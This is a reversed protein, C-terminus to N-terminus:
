GNYKWAAEIAAQTWVHLRNPHGALTQLERLVIQYHSQSLKSAGDFLDQKIKSNNEPFVVDSAKQRWMIVYRDEVRDIVNELNTWASCVFIRLNPISLVGDIKHTLNECCGYATLGFRGLIPRQYDLLFREWMAPSVQDFEQSNTMNWLNHLGITGDPNPEGIPDSCTMPEENNPTLIGMSEIQDLSSLVADRLYGMLQHVLEPQNMMHMMLPTLGIMEAAPSCLITHLPPQCIQKPPLMDGLREYVQEMQRQTEAKDFSYHPIKLQNLDEITQIPPDYVWAGDDEDPNTHQINVGYITVPEVQLVAQVPYFSPIPTDDGIDIKVLLMRLYKEISRSYPDSCRLTDEPLLEKWAGVPRCWVPARDPKRLGNVDRWRNIAAKNQKSQSYEAIPEALTQLYEVQTAVDM